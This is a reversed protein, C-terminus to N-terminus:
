ASRRRRREEEFAAAADVDRRTLHPMAAIVDDPGWGDDLLEAVKRTPVRTGAIVPQKGQVGRVTEVRGDERTTLEQITAMLGSRLDKLTSEFVIAPQESHRWSMPNNSAPDIWYARGHLRKPSRRRTSRTADLPDGLLTVGPDEDTEAVIRLTLLPDPVGRAQLEEIRAKMEGPLVNRKRMEAAAKLQLVDRFSYLRPLGPFDHQAVSPSILGLEDWYELQRRTLGTIRRVLDQSFAEITGAM